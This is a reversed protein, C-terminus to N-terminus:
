AIGTENKRAKQEVLRPLIEHNARDIDSRFDIETWPLGTVDEFGFAVTPDRVLMDRIAEEYLADRRSGASFEEVVSRLRVANGADLKFFGISEGAFDYHTGEPVVRGIEVIRDGRVCVKVPEDGAEFDRDILVCSSHASEVLRELLRLDYLVDADMLLLPGSGGLHERLHWLTVVNGEEYDPNHVTEVAVGADIHMLAEEIREHQYGVGIVVRSVGVAALLELHRELLSKGAFELLSKPPRGGGLRWGTGAAFILAKM